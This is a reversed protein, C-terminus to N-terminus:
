PAIGRKLTTGSDLPIETIIAEDPFEVLQRVVFELFERM